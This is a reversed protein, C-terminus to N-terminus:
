IKARETQTGKTTLAADIVRESAAYIQLMKAALTDLDAVGAARTLFQIGAQGLATPQVATTSLLRAACQLSWCMEYARTLTTATESNLLGIQAAHRLGDPAHHSVHGALLAGAQAILEIEQLRGPGIKADFPGEPAKAAAIRRRMDAVQDCVHIMDSTRALIDSIVETVRQVLSHPGAIVHARTLALHEWVWAEKQQYQEFSVLSTAVPGQNGSPRLRMDIDYLKGQAMPATMATIMAQTLRAYYQRTSLPRPGNSTEQGAADYIVLLDLDSTATMQGAGLSGMGVIVAGEGPPAGHREAFQAIVLPWLTMLVAQALDAYQRGADSPKIVGLLLHVGIRFHWEKAWRRTADLQAEYDQEAALACHLQVALTEKGPWDSFFDGGIVADFVGANRSLYRALAPSTTVVDIVLDTLSPNAQLLSFFQVGAPLGSLFGDFALLAEDPRAAASLRQLLEPKLQDFLTIARPSRLAPYHRWGAIIKADFAHEPLARSAKAVPPDTIFFAETLEHVQRLREQLETQLPILDRDMLAALREFEIDTKPLTHTQADRVMQLRHEVVRHARYHDALTQATSDPIWGAASLANLGEVTGKARLTPDRGGAILQRTQTFFEIERIGGRGLKMNHGPLTIPGALGKHARIALRMDHADQIAAFDLHRRWIFPGLGSLFREGASLDGAAPRAKIYAAREWTRGLAEYYREAASMSLCVPTVAPDPRLRLDTRFVYGEETIDSLIATMKRVAKVFAGRVALLDEPGFQSDDFLCILDIDSSYNLERAGMKGMALVVMGATGTQDSGFVQGFKGQGIIPALAARLAADCAADAFTSLANTVEELDWAGGLDAIATMLAVKRKAQRLTSSLDTHPAAGLNACIEDLANKPHIAARSFWHHERELLRMLYPAASVSALVVERLEAPLDACFSAADAARAPDFVRPARTMLSALSRDM